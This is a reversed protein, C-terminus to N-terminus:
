SAAEQAEGRAERGEEAAAQDGRRKYSHAPALHRVARYHHGQREQQRIPKRLPLAPDAM